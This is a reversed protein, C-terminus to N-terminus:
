RQPPISPILSPCTLGKCTIIINKKKFQMNPVCNENCGKKLVKCKDRIIGGKYRNLKYLFVTHILSCIPNSM